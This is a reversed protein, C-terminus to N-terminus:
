EEVFFYARCHPCSLQKHFWAELCSAHGLVSHCSTCEVVAQKLALDELCVLCTKEVLSQPTPVIHIIVADQIEPLVSKKSQFHIYLM